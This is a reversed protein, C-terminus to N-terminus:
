VLGGAKAMLWALLLLVGATLLLLWLILRQRRQPAHYVDQSYADLDTDAADTNYANVDPQEDFSEEPSFDDQAADEEMLQKQLKELAADRDRFM